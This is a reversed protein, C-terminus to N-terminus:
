GLAEAKFPVCAALDSAETVFHRAADRLATRLGEEIVPHYFPMRLLDLVTLEQSIALALLHALHEAAPACMEAGLLRCSQKDAYVRLLGRNRQGMRARGQNAFNVEGVVLQGAALTAHRAGVTAIGPEAFVIGLPTRRQFCSPDSAMANVGAIYGEDAAEHLLPAHANADGALFVPSDGIRMTTPDFPPMGREDLAVGLSELGLDDLNPRRGIAVLVMDVTAAHDGVSVRLGADSETIDVDGGTHVTLAEELVSRLAAIVPEDSLGALQTGRSFASVELGLFALAQAFEVGVAGLGIVAIRGPLTKLEFVTDTTQIREGFARWPAPIIPHSGTALIIRRAEIARGDVLLRGPGDLRARGVVSRDGLDATARLVGSVFRDRLERVHRLVAPLDVALGSGGRIGFAEFRRRQHFAHAVEILAKSPMCGVRACTTGYPGDNVLVFRDTRKRVQQMAALGASGAGIIAVDVKETMEYETGTRIAAPAM